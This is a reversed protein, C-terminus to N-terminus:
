RRAPTLRLIEGDGGDDRNGANTTVYVAGDPGVRVDRIRAGRDVLYREEGLVVGNDIRIRHLASGALAGVLLDGNWGPFAEGRYVALGSPAISPTWYHAPGRAGELETYPSVRAGNYDIGFTALPWGYNAGAEIVNIEDGGRAGHEHEYLVGTAPDFALGQANRHGKSYLEPLAGNVAWDPNDSPASGDANLRVVAGFSTGARQALEKYRSGEGVTAYLKGDPGWALKGGYHLSTDKLPRAAYVDELGSLAAGDFRGRVIALGNAKADGKAYALYVLRNETFEPHPLVDFYGAQNAVYADPTGAIPTPDLVGDRLIRLRGARETVLMDGNPLFALGWPFQLGGAVVEVDIATEGLPAPDALRKQAAADGGGAGVPLAPGLDGADPPAAAGCGALLGCVALAAARGLLKMLAM